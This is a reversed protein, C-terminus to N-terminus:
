GGHIVYGDDVTSCLTKLLLYYVRKTWCVVALMREIFFIRDPMDSEM